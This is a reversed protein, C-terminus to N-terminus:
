AILSYFVAPDVNGGTIVCCVQQGNFRKSDTLVAALALAGTPEVKLNALYFLLRVANRIAAEPVEIIDAIGDKLVEWTRAGLPSRAGDAITDSEM